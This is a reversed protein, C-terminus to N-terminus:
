GDGELIGVLTAIRFDNFEEDIEDLKHGVKEELTFLFNTADLSDLIGDAVLDTDDAIMDPADPKTNQICKMILERAQQREM